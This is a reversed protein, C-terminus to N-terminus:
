DRTALWICGGYIAAMFVLAALWWLTVCLLMPGDIM